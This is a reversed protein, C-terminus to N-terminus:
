EYYQLKVTSIYSPRNGTPISLRVPSLTGDGNVSYVDAINSVSYTIVVAALDNVLKIDNPGININITTQLSLVSTSPDVGHISIRNYDYEINYLRNNYMIAELAGTTVTTTTKYVLSGDAAILYRLLTGDVMNMAFLYDTNGSLISYIGLAQATTSVPTLTGSSISFVKINGSSFNSAYLYSGAIHVRMPSTGLAYTNVYTLAGTSANVSYVFLNNSFQNVVYMYGDKIAVDTPCDGAAVNSIFTLEGTTQNISYIGINDSYGNLVYLNQGNVLMKTPYDGVTKTQVTTAVTDSPNYSIVSITDDDSNSVYVIHKTILQQPPPTPDPTPTVTPTPTPTVVPEPTPTPTIVVTPTVPPIETPTPTVVEVTDPLVTPTIAPTDNTIPQQQEITVETNDTASPTQVSTPTDTTTPPSECSFFVFMFIFSFVYQKFMHM